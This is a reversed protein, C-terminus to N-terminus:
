RVGLFYFSTSCYGEKFVWKQEVGDCILRVFPDSLSEGVLSIDM